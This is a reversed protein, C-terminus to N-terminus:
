VQSGLFNEWMSNKFADLDYNMLVSPKDPSIMSQKRMLELRDGNGIGTADSVLSTDNTKDSNASKDSDQKVLSDIADFNALSDERFIDSVQNQDQM